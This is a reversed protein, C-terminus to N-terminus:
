VIIGGFPVSLLRAHVGGFGVTKLKGVRVGGGGHVLKLGAADAGGFRLAVVERQERGFGGAGPRGM